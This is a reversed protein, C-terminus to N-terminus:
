SLFLSLFERVLSASEYAFQSLYFELSTPSNWAPNLFERAIGINKCHQQLQLQATSAVTTNICVNQLLVGALRTGFPPTGARHDEGFLFIFFDGRQRFEPARGTNPVYHCM